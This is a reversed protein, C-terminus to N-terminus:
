AKLYTLIINGSKRATVFKIGLEEVKHIQYRIRKVFKLVSCVYTSDYCTLRVCPLRIMVRLLQGFKAVLWDSRMMRMGLARHFSIKFVHIAVVTSSHEDFYSLVLLWLQM